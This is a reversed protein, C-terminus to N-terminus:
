MWRGQSLRRMRSRARLVLSDFSRSWKSDLYAERDIVSLAKDNEPTESSLIDDKSMGSVTQLIFDGLYAMALEAELVRRLARSDLIEDQVYDIAVAEGPGDCPIGWDQPMSWAMPRVATEWKRGDSAKREALFWETFDSGEVRRRAQCKAPWILLDLGQHRHVLFALFHLMRMRQYERRSVKVEHEDDLAVPTGDEDIPWKCYLKLSSLHPMDKMFAELYEPWRSKPFHLMPGEMLLELRQIMLCGGVGVVDPLQDILTSRAYLVGCFHKVHELVDSQLGPSAQVLGDCNTFTAPVLTLSLDFEFKDIIFSYIHQRLELPLGLFLPEQPLTSTSHDM